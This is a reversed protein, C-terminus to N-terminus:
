YNMIEENTLRLYDVKIDVLIPRNFATGKSSKPTIRRASPYILGDTASHELVLNAASALKSVVEATYNHQILKGTTVDFHFEQFKCHTPISDPFIAELIGSEKENWSINENMLLGPLTFYNWFAYNAFYAMDLDDWYFLRRGYPFCARPNEREALVIGNYDELRAQHGDLVGTVNVNKGIPTLKSFPRGIEMKIKAHNFFPRRKLTFLLGCVSVEAELYKSNQWLWVGGYAEIAKQASTSLM